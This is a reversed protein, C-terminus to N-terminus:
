GGGDSASQFCRAHVMYNAAGCGVDSAFQLEFEIEVTGITKGCVACSAGTGPGGWMREPRQAPLNGTKIAERAPARLVCEDSMEM